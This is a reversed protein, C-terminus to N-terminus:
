GPPCPSRRPPMTVLLRGGPTRATTELAYAVAELYTARSPKAGDNLVAFAGQVFLHFVTRQAADMRNALPSM